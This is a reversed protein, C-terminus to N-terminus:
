YIAIGNYLWEFNANQYASWKFLYRWIYTPFVKLIFFYEEIFLLVIKFYSFLRLFQLLKRNRNFPMSHAVYTWDKGLINNAM